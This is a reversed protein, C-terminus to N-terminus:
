QTQGRLVHALDHAALLPCWIPDVDSGAEFSGDFGLQDLLDVLQECTGKARKSVIVLAREYLRMAESKDTKLSEPVRRLGGRGVNDDEMLTALRRLREFDELGHAARWLTFGKTAQGQDALASADEAIEAGTVRYFAVRSVFPDRAAKALDEALRYAQLFPQNPGIVVFGIKTTLKPWPQETRKQNEDLQRVDFRHVTQTALTEYARVFAVVFDAVLDARLILTVDDGGLLIPRAPMVGQVAADVVAGMATQVAERTARTLDQSLARVEDSDLQALAAAYLAGMGNGDAHLVAIRPLSREGFPFVVREADNDEDASFVEPWRLGTRQSEAVFKWALGATGHRL